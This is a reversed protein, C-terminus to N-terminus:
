GAFSDGAAKQFAPGWLRDPRRRGLLGIESPGAWRETVVGVVVSWCREMAVALRNINVPVNGSNWSRGEPVCCM